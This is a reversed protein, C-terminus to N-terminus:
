QKILAGEAYFIRIAWVDTPTARIPSHNNREGVQCLGRDCRDLIRCRGWISENIKVMFANHRSSPEQRLPYKAGLKVDICM